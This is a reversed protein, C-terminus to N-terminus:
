KENYVFYSYSWFIVESRYYYSCVNIVDVTVASVVMIIVPLLLSLLFSLVFPVVPLVVSFAVSNRVFIGLV